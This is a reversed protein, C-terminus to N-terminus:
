AAPRARRYQEGRTLAHYALLVFCALVFLKNVFWNMSWITWHPQALFLAFKVAVIVIETFSVGLAMARLYRPRALLAWGLWLHAVWWLDWYVYSAVPAGEILAWTVPLLYKIILTWAALLFLFHALFRIM